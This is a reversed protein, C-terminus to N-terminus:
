AGELGVGAVAWRPNVVKVGVFAAAGDGATVMGTSVMSSMSQGSKKIVSSM